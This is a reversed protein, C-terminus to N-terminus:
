GTPYRSKRWPILMNMFYDFDSEEPHHYSVCLIEFDRDELVLEIAALAHHSGCQQSPWAEGFGHYILRQFASDEVMNWSVQDAGRASAM